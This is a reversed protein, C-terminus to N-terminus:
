LVLYNNNLRNQCNIKSLLSDLIVNLEDNYPEIINVDETKPLNSYLEICKALENQFDRIKNRFIKLSNFQGLLSQNDKLLKSIGSQQLLQIKSELDKIETTLKSKAM